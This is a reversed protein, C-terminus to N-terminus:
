TQSDAGGTAADTSTGGRLFRGRLNPTGGTGDCVYWKSKFTANANTWSSTSMALITGAPLLIDMLTSTAWATVAGVTPYKATDEISAATIATVKNSVNEAWAAVAGTTPYKAADEINGATITTVKNASNEAWATVAGITPYKVAENKNVDTISAVKNSSDEKNNLATVVVKETPIKVDSASTTSTALTTVRPLTGFTGATGSYAVIDDKTGASIKDQKAALSNFVLKSSPYMADSISSLTETSIQKNAVNEKTHLANRVGAASLSKGTDINYLAVKFDTDTGDTYNSAM